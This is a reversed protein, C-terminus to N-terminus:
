WWRVPYSLVGTSDGFYPGTYPPTPASEVESRWWDSGLIQVPPHNAFATGTLTGNNKNGSLDPEPAYAGYLPWYCKLATPRVSTPLRGNVLATIENAILAVNWIAVEGVSGNFFESNSGNLLVGLDTQNISAPTCSTSGSGVGGGNLYVARSTPSSFVGCAHSWVGSSYSTSTFTQSYGAGGNNLDVCVKGSRLHLRLWNNSIGATSDLSVLSQTDTTDTTKFWCAMTFPTSTISALLVRLYDTSGNLLRAM